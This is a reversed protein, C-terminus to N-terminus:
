NRGDATQKLDVTRRSPGSRFGRANGGVDQYVELTRAVVEDWTPIHPKGAHDAAADSITVALETAGVGRNVIRMRDGGFVATGRHAPIDSAVVRAGAYLAELPTIPMAEIESMTVYVDATRLWRHLEATPVKGLLRVRPCLDLEAVLAELPRRWPGEGTVVLVFREDLHALARITEDVHKHEVLRGGSLIVIEGDRDFPQAADLAAADVGNPIVIIKRRAEPFHDGILGAEAPAVAIVRRARRMIRRGALRYPRHLLNRFASQSMGHYHPTFVLPSRTAITAILAPLANYNHAHVVDYDASRRALFRGLGPALPYHESRGIVKFRRVLVGDFKETRPLSADATQVLVEVEHGEAAMRRALQEVHTEVGGIEPRFLPTVFAIRM